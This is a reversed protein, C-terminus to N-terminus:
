DSLECRIPKVTAVEPFDLGGANPGLPPFVLKDPFCDLYHFTTGSSGEAVIEAITLRPGKAVLAELEALIKQKPTLYIEIVLDTIGVDTTESPAFPVEGSGALKPDVVLPKGKGLIEDWAQDLLEDSVVAGPPVVFTREELDPECFDTRLDKDLTLPM